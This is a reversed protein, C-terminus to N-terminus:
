GLKFPSTSQGLCKCLGLYGQFNVHQHHSRLMFIVTWSSFRLLQQHLVLNICLKLLHCGKTPSHIAARTNVSWTQVQTPIKRETLVYDLDLYLSSHSSSVDQHCSCMVLSLHHYHHPPVSVKLLLCSSSKITLISYHCTTVYNVFQCLQINVHFHHNM